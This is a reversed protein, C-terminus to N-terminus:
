IGLSSQGNVRNPKHVTVSAHIFIGAPDIRWNVEIFNPWPVQIPGDAVCSRFRLNEPKESAREDRHANYCIGDYKSVGGSVVQTGEPDV